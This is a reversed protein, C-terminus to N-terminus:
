TGTAALTTDRVGGGSSVKVTNAGASAGLTLTAEALGSANTTVTVNNQGGFKGNGGTVSFQVSVGSVPLGDADVVRITFAQALTAGAAASQGDGRVVRLAAPQTGTHYPSATYSVTADVGVVSDGAAALAAARRPGRGDGFWIGAYDRSVAPYENWVGSGSNDFVDTQSPTFASLSHLAIGIANRTILDQSFEAVQALEVSVGAEGAYDSVRAGTVRVTDAHLSLAAAQPVGTRAAGSFLGGSVTVTSGGSMWVAIGQRGLSTVRDLTLTGGASPDFSLAPVQAGGCDQLLSQQILIAPSAGLVLVCPSTAQNGQATDQVLSVTDAELATVAAFASDFRSGWIFVSSRRSILQVRGGAFSSRDVRAGRTDLFSVGDMPAADATPDTFTASAIDTQPSSVVEIGARGDTGSSGGDDGAQRALDFVGGVQALPANVLRVQRVSGALDNGFVTAGTSGTVLVRPGQTARVVNGRATNGSGGSVEIGAGAAVGPLSDVGRVSAAQVIAGSANELRIGYGRVSDVYVREIRTGSTSNAVRIGRGIRSSVSGPRNVHLDAVVVDSGRTDIAPGDLSHTLALYRITVPATTYATIGAAGTDHAVQPLLAPDHGAAYGASDGLLVVRRALAVSESYPSVGRLVVVTDGADAANVGDQIKAYPRAVTGVRLGTSVANSVYLRTPNFVTVTATDAVAGARAILHATGWGVAVAVGTPLVTDVTARSTSQWAVAYDPILANRANRVEVGYSLSQGVATLSDSASGLIVVSAPVNTVAVLVSDTLAGSTARVVTQGTDRATVIGAGNVRAITADDSTWTVAGRPLAAGRANSVTVPLTDVDGLSTYLRSAPTIDIVVPVNTVRALATDARGGVTVVMRATGVAVAIARGDGLLRVVTSDPTRWTLVAAVSDGRGNRAVARFVLTDGLSTAVASDPAIAVSAPDNSILVTVTDAAADLAAIVRASGTALATVLGDTSVRVAAPELTFWAPRAGQLEV